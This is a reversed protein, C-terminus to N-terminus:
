PTERVNTRNDEWSIWVDFAAGSITEPIENMIELLSFWWPDARNPNNDIRDLWAFKGKTNRIETNGTASNCRAEYTGGLPRNRTLEPVSGKAHYIAGPYEVRLKRAM